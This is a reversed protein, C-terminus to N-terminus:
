LHGFLAFGQHNFGEVLAHEHPGANDRFAKAGDVVIEEADTGLLAMAQGTPKM